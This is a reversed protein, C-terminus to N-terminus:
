CPIAEPRQPLTLSSPSATATLARLLPEPSVVLLVPEDDVLAVHSVFPSRQEFAAPLPVIEHRALSRLQLAGRAILRLRREAVQVTVVRRARDQVPGGGLLARVDVATEADGDTFPEIMTVADSAIAWVPSGADITLLATAGAEAEARGPM